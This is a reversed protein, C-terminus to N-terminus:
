LGCVTGGRIVNRDIFGRGLEIVLSIPQVGRDIGGGGALEIRRFCLGHGLHEKRFETLFMEDVVCRPQLYGAM